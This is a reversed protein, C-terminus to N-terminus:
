YNVLQITKIYNSELGKKLKYAISFLIFSKSYAINYSFFIQEVDRFHKSCSFSFLILGALVLVCVCLCGAM